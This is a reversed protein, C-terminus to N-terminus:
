APALSASRADLEVPRRAVRNQLLRLAFRRPARDWPTFRALQFIDSASSSAGWSTSVAARYGAQRALAVHEAGYDQGPM